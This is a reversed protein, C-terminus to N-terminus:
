DIFGWSLTQICQKLKVAMINLSWMQYNSMRNSIQKLFETHKIWDSDKGQKKSVGTSEERANNSIEM